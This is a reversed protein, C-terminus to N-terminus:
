SPRLAALLDRTTATPVIGLNEWLVKALEDFQRLAEGANGEALHAQIVARHASERLPESRVAALGAEIALGHRGLTSLRVCLAELSHLRIQRLRERELLVWDDYWEPLLEDSLGDPGTAPDIEATPDETLQHARAVMADLDIEVTPGLRLYSGQSVVLDRAVRRAKWLATRLNAAAREEPSDLWLTGAVTTRHQPRSRLALFALVRAVNAPVNVARDDHRLEFGNLLNLQTPAAAEVCLPPAPVSRAM